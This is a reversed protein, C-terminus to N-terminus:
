KQGPEDSEPEVPNVKATLWNQVILYSQVEEGRLTVRKLLELAIRAIQAETSVNM